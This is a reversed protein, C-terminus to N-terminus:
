YFFKVFQVSSKCVVLVPYTCRSVLFDAYMAENTAAKEAAALAAATAQAALRVRRKLVDQPITDYIEIHPYVSPDLIEDVLLLASVHNSSM